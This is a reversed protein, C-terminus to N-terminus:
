EVTVDEYSTMPKRGGFADSSVTKIWERVMAEDDLQAYPQQAAAQWPLIMALLALLISRKM